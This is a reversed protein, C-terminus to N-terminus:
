AYRAPKRIHITTGVRPADYTRNVTAAMPLNGKLAALTERAFLNAMRRRQARLTRWRALTIGAIGVAVILTLARNM